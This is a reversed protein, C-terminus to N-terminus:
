TANFAKELCDQCSRVAMANKTNYWKLCNATSMLLEIRFENFSITQRHRRVPKTAFLYMALVFRNINNTIQSTRKPTVM